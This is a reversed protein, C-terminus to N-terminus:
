VSITLRGDVRIRMDFAWWAAVFPYISRCSARYYVLRHLRLLSKSGKPTYLTNNSFSKYSYSHQIFIFWKIIVNNRQITYRSYLSVTRYNDTTHNLNLFLSFENIRICTYKTYYSVYKRFYFCFQWFNVLKRERRSYLYVLLKERSSLKSVRYVRTWPHIYRPM